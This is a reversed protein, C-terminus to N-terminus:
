SEKPINGKNENKLLKLVYSQYFYHVQWMDNPLLNGITSLPLDGKLKWIEKTITM